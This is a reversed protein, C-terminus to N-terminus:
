PGIAEALREDLAAPDLIDATIRLAIAEPLGGQADPRRLRALDKETTVLSAAHREAADRLTALDGARFPRHDRFTLFEAVEVGERVLDDRFREPAAIACFAVAKRPAAAVSGDADVFGETRRISRVVPARAGLRVLEDAIPATTAAPEIGTVVVLDARTLASLPERLTGAPFLRRGGFPDSAPLLVIDLDRALARHQFGDDLVAVEAGAEAAAEVCSVRESGVVVLAEPARSALLYPEDGCSEPGVTPGSGRSVWLPGAGATGGYGRSVIAARRGLAHVRDALWAVHPTKGTGGVAVNGVSVVPISARRVGHGADYWRNRVRVGCGYIAAPIASVRELLTPRSM